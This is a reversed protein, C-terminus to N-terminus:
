GTAGARRGVAGRGGFREGHGADQRERLHDDAGVAFHAQAAVVCQALHCQAIERLLGKGFDPSAFNVCANAFGHGPIASAAKLEAFPAIEDLLRHM